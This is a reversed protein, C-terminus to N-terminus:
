RLAPTYFFFFLFFFFFSFFPETMLTYSKKLLEDVDSRRSLKSRHFPSLHFLTMREGEGRAKEGGGGPAYLRSRITTTSIM